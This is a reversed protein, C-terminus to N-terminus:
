VVAFPRGAEPRSVAEVRQREAHAARAKESLWRSLHQHAQCVRAKVTSEGCALHQAKGSIRIM